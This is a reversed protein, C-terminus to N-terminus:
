TDELEDEREDAPEPEKGKAESEMAIDIPQIRDLLVKQGAHWGEMHRQHHDHDTPYAEKDPDKGMLGAVYGARYAREALEDSSLISSSPIEFLSMQSGIPVDLWAAYQKIRQLTALVTDADQDAFKRVLELDKRVIGANIALKWVKNLRKKAAAVKAEESAIKGLFVLVTDADVGNSGPKAEKPTKDPLVKRRSGTKPKTLTEM